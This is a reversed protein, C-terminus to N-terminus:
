LKFKQPTGNKKFAGEGKLFAKVGEAKGKYDLRSMTNSSLYSKLKYNRYMSRASNKGKDLGHKRYFYCRSWGFHWSKMFTLSLDNGSSSDGFHQFYVSPCLKIGYGAQRTRYCLDSEESYLFINDDFLGVNNMKQLDFLMAAGPVADTLQPTVGSHDSENIAPAWIATNDNDKLAISLLQSIAQESVVLDPNLLLAFRCHCGTLGENAARGYGINQELQVVSIDPFAQLLLQESSDSSANDVVIVQLQTNDLFSKWNELIVATSNYSVTIIIIDPTM